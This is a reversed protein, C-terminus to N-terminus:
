RCEMLVLAEIIPVQVIFFRHVVRALWAFFNQFGSGTEGVVGVLGRFFQGKYLLSIFTQFIADM